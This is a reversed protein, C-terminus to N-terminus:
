FLNELSDDSGPGYRSTEGGIEQQATGTRAAKAKSLGARDLIAEAARLQIREDEADLLERITEAAEPVARQLEARADDIPPVPADDSTDASAM